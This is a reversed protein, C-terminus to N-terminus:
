IYVRTKWLINTQTNHTEQRVSLPFFATVSSSVMTDAAAEKISLQRDGNRNLHTSCDGKCTKDHIIPKQQNGLDQAARALPHCREM